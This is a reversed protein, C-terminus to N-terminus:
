KNILRNIASRNYRDTESTAAKPQQGQPEKGEPPTTTTTSSPPFTSTRATRATRLFDQLEVKLMGIIKEVKEPAPRSELDHLTSQLREMLDTMRDISRAQRELVATIKTQAELVEELLQRNSPPTQTQEM